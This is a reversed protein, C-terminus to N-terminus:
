CANTKAEKEAKNYHSLSDVFPERVKATLEQTTLAYRQYAGFRADNRITGCSNTVIRDGQQFRTVDTGVKVVTGSFSLGIVTPYELRFPLIGEQIKYEAPQVAVAKVEILLEGPGPEPTNASRVEVRKGVAPLWAATNQHVAM